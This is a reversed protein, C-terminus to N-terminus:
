SFLGLRNPAMAARAIAVLERETRLAPLENHVTVVETAGAALHLRAAATMGTRLLHWEHAGLRYRIRPTGDRRVDVRGSAVNRAHGDRTLVSPAGTRTFLSVRGAHGSGSGPTAVAALAPLYPPCEIWTGYGGDIDHYETCLASQPIGAAQYVIDPYVGAVATTPHLRLWDGVGDGGMGSRQLIAPTGVAGA